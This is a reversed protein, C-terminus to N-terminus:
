APKRARVWLLQHDPSADRTRGFFHGYTDDAPGKPAVRYSVVDLPELLRDNVLEESLMQPECPTPREHLNFSGIVEGGPALIRLLEDCMVGFKNVHDMANVTFLVDVYNSPLPISTETACVYCTDHRAIGLRTYADALVDIGIRVRAPKAWCLSGCPGCGFDAVIKDQLFDLSQEGAIALMLNRYHSNGLRGEEWLARWYALEGKYKRKPSIRVRFSRVQHKGWQHLLLLNM